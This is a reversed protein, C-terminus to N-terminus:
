KLFKKCASGFYRQQKKKIKLYFCNHKNAFRMVNWQDRQRGPEQPRPFASSGDAVRSWVLEAVVEPEVEVGVVVVVVVVMLPVM